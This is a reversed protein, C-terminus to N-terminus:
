EAQPPTEDQHPTVDASKEGSEPLTPDPSTVDAPNQPEATKVAQKPAFEGLRLAKGVTLCLPPILLSCVLAEGIGVLMFVWWYTGVALGMIPMAPFLLALCTIVLVTNTAVGTIVALIYPLYRMFKSKGKIKKAGQYALSSFLGVLMRPVVWVICVILIQVGTVGSGAVAILAFTLCVLGAFVGIILGHVPKYLCSVFFVPILFAAVPLWALAFMLAVAVAAVAIDKPRLKM